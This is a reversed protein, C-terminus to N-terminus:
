LRALSPERDCKPGHASGRKITYKISNTKYIIMKGDTTIGTISVDDTDTDNRITLIM